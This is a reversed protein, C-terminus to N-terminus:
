DEGGKEGGCVVNPRLPDASGFKFASRLHGAGLSECVSDFESFLLTGADLVESIRKGTLEIGEGALL